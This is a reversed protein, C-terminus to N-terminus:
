VGYLHLLQQRGAKLAALWGKLFPSTSEKGMNKIAAAVRKTQGLLIRENSPPSYPFKLQKGTETIVQYVEDSLEQYSFKKAYEEGFM